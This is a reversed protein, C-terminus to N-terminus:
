AEVLAKMRELGRRCVDTPDEKWLTRNFLELSLPGNYGIKRLNAIVRKLDVVGEGPLVRDADTQQLVPPSAPSDNM